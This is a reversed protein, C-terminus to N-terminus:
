GASLPVQPAHSCVRMVQDAGCSALQSSSQCFFFAPIGVPYVWVMVGAFIAYNNYRYWVDACNNRQTQMYKSTYCNQTFDANLYWADEVYQVNFSM